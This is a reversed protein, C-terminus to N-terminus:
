LLMATFSGVEGKFVVEFGSPIVEVGLGIDLDGALTSLAAGLAPKLRQM